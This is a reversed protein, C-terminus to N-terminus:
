SNLENTNRFLKVIQKKTEFFFDSPIKIEMANYIFKPLIKSINIEKMWSFLREM